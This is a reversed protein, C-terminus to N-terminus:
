LGRLLRDLIKKPGGEEGSGWRDIDERWQNEVQCRFQLLRLQRRWLDPQRACANKIGVETGSLDPKLWSSLSRGRRHSFVEM